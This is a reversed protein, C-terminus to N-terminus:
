VWGVKSTMEQQLFDSKGKPINKGSQPILHSRESQSVLLGMEGHSEMKWKGMVKIDANLCVTLGKGPVMIQMEKSYIQFKNSIKKAGTGDAHIATEGQSSLKVYEVCM